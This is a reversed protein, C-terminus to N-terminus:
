SYEGWVKADSLRVVSVFGEDGENFVKYYGADVFDYILDDYTNPNDGVFELFKNHSPFFEKVILDELQQKTLIMTRFKPRSPQQKCNKCKWGAHGCMGESTQLCPLSEITTKGLFMEFVVYKDNGVAYDYSVADDETPEAADMKSM